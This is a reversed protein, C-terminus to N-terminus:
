IPYQGEHIVNKLYNMTKLEDKEPLDNNAKYSPLALCEARLRQQVEPYQALLRSYPIDASCEVVIM